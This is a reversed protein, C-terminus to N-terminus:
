DVVALFRVHGAEEMFRPASKGGSGGPFFDLWHVGANLRTLSGAFFWSCKSSKQGISSQMLTSFKHQM